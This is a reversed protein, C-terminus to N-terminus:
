GIGAIQGIFDQLSEAQTGQTATLQAERLGFHGVERLGFHGVEEAIGTPPGVGTGQEAVLARTLGLKAAGFYVAALLAV